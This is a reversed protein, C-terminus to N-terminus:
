SHLELTIWLPTGEFQSVIEVTSGDALSHMHYDGGTIITPVSLMCQDGIGSLKAKFNGAIMNCVEGVADWSEQEAAGPATGLMRSAILGAGAASCRLSLIGCLSGALGVMATFESTIEQEIDNLRTLRTGVMMEFVECAAVELLSHWNDRILSNSLPAASAPTNM